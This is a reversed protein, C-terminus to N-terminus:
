RSPQVSAGCRGAAHAEFEQPFVALASRLLRAADVAHRCHGRAHSQTSWRVVADFATPRTLDALAGVIRTLDVRCSREQLRLLRLTEDVGCRGQPFATLVRPEGVPVGLSGTEWRAALARETAVWTGRSGGVLVAQANRASAGLLTRVPTGVATEVVQPLTEGAHVTCLVSGPADPTGVARFWAAGYRALLAIQALAEAPLALVPAAATRHLAATVHHLGEDVLLPSRRLLTENNHCAPDGDRAVVVVGRAPRTVALGLGDLGAEGLLGPLDDVCPVPGDVADVALLRPLTVRHPLTAVTM